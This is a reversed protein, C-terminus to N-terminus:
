IVEQHAVDDLWYFVVFSEIFKFYKRVYAYKSARYKEILICRAQLKSSHIFSINKLLYAFGLYLTIVSFGIRVYIPAAEIKKFLGQEVLAVRESYNYSQIGGWQYLIPSILTRSFLKTYM